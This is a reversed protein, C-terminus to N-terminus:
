SIDLGSGVTKKRMLGLLEGLFYFGEQGKGVCGSWNRIVTDSLALSINQVATDLM